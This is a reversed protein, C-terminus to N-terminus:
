SSEHILGKHRAFRHWFHFTALSGHPAFRAMLFAMQKPGPRSGSGFFRQLETALASDGLPVADQVGFGRLLM